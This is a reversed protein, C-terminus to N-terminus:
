APKQIDDASVPVRRYTVLQPVYFFVRTQDKGFWERVLDEQWLEAVNQLNEKDFALSVREDEYVYTMVSYEADIREVPVAIRRKDFLFTNPLNYFDIPTLFVGSNEYPKNIIPKAFNEYITEFFDAKYAMIDKWRQSDPFDSLPCLGNELMSSLTDEAENFLYHFLHTTSVVQM